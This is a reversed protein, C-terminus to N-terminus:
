ETLREDIAPEQDRVPVVAVLGCEGVVLLGPSRRAAVHHDHEHADGIGAQHDKGCMADGLADVAGIRCVLVDLGCQVVEFRLRSIARGGDEVPSTALDRQQVAVLALEVYLEDFRM